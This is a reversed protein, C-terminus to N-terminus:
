SRGAEPSGIPTRGARGDTFRLIGGLLRRPLPSLAARFADDVARHHAAVAEDIADSLLSVQEATLGRLGSM